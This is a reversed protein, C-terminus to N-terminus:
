QQQPLASDLDPDPDALKVCQSASVTRAKTNRCMAEEPWHGYAEWDAKFVKKEM